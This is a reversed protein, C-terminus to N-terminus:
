QVCVLELMYRNNCINVLLLFLVKHKYRQNNLLFFGATTHLQFCALHFANHILHYIHTLLKIGYKFM